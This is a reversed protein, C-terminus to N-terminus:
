DHLRRLTSDHSGRLGSFFPLSQCSSCTSRSRTDKAPVLRLIRHPKFRGPLLGASSLGHTLITETYICCSRTSRAGLASCQHHKSKNFRCEPLTQPGRATGLSHLASCLAAFLAFRAARCATRTPM